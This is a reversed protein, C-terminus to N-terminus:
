ALNAWGSEVLARSVYEEGRLIANATMHKHLRDLGLPGLHRKFPSAKSHDEFFLWLIADRLVVSSVDAVRSSSRSEYISVLLGVPTRDFLAQQAVEPEVFANGRIHEFSSIFDALQASNLPPHARLTDRVIFMLWTFLTAKNFKPTSTIHVRAEAFLRTGQAVLDVTDLKLPEDSRYLDALDSATIKEALSRREIALAARAMVDDYAM